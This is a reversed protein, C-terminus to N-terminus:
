PRLSWAFWAALLVMGVGLLRILLVYGPRPEPPHAYRWIAGWRIVTRPAVAAFLGALAWFVAAVWDTSTGQM